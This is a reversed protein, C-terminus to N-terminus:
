QNENSAAGFNADAVHILRAKQRARACPDGVGAREYVAEGTNDVRRIQCGVQFRTEAAPSHVSKYLHYSNSRGIM